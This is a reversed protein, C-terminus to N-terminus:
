YDNYHNILNTRFGLNLICNKQENTGLNNRYTFGIFATMDLTENFRYALEFQEFNIWKNESLTPMSISMLSNKNYDMLQYFISKGSFFFNNRSWSARMIIERFGDGKIHALPLNYQTFSLRQIPARYMDKSVLNYEMQLMLKRISFIEYLRFGGQYAYTLNKYKSIAGQGYIRITSNIIWNVNTGIVSYVTEEKILKNILPVPCFYLPNIRSTTLSDGRAWISGEFFSISFTKNPAYTIYNIALGKPQYYGEVTSYVNKRVLNLLRSRMYQFSWKQNIQYNFKFYPSGVSNDSLLLSRHGAGIFQQNNGAILDVKKNIRYVLSGVAYAYDYATNKFPKTRAAGPVVANQLTYNNNTTPYIEGHESMYSQEYSAFRTQNEYFSSSFSFRDTIAGKFLVGRTNQFLRDNNTDCIDKGMGFNFLPSFSILYDDGKIEILQGQRFNKKPETVIMIEIIELSDKPRKFSRMQYIIPLFDGNNNSNIYFTPKFWDDKFASSIPLLNLQGYSLLPLSFIFLLLKNRM